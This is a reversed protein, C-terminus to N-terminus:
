EWSLLIEGTKYIRDLNSAESSVSAHNAGFTVKLRFTSNVSLLSKLMEPGEVSLQFRGEGREVIGYLEVVGGIQGYKLVISYGAKM